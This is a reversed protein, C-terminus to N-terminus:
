LPPSFPPQTLFPRLRHSAHRAYRPSQTESRGAQHRRRPSADLDNDPVLSNETQEKQRTPAGTLAFLIAYALQRGCAIHYGRGEVLLAPPYLLYGCSDCRAEKQIHQEIARLSKLIM